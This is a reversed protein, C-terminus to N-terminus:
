QFSSLFYRFPAAVGTAEGTLREVEAELTKITDNLTSLTAQTLSTGDIAVNQGNDLIRRRAAYAATLEAQADGLSRTAM